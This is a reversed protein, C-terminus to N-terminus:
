PGLIFIYPKNKKVINRKPNFLTNELKFSSVNEIDFRCVPKANEKLQCQHSGMDREEMTFTLCCSSMSMFCDPVVISSTFSTLAGAYTHPFTPFYTLLSYVLETTSAKLTCTHTCTHTLMLNLTKILACVSATFLLLFLRLPGPLLRIGGETEYVCMPPRVEQQEPMTFPSGKSYM